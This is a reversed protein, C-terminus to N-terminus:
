CWAWTTSRPTPSCGSSTRARRRTCRASCRRCWASASVALWWWLLGGGLLGAGVRVIGYIGLNVMAGSMLASVPGPAEPHARPLWVHLPVAGAKSAFGVLALLFVLRASRPRFRAPMTASRPSRSAAPTRASRPGARAPDRRGRRPDDGRVVPGRGAGRGPPARHAAAAAVVAGDAGVRGHVDRHEGRGAGAAPEHRVAAAAGRRGPERPRPGPLRGRLLEGGRRHRCGDGVFVAGFPDLSLTVGTLPLIAASGATVPVGLGAGARGRRLGRRMGASTLVAAAPARVRGPLVLGAVAGGAGLGLGVLFLVASVARDARAAGAHDGGSGPPCGPIELDPDAVM